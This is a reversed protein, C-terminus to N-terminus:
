LLIGFAVCIRYPLGQGGFAWHALCLPQVLLLSCYFGHVFLAGHNQARPLSQTNASTGLIITDSKSNHNHPQRLLEEREVRCGPSRKWPSLSPHWRGAGGESFGMGVSVFSDVGREYWLRFQIEEEKLNAVKERMQYDFVHCLTQYLLSLLKLFPTHEM